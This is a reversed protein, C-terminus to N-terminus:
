VEDCPNVSWPNVSEHVVLKRLGQEDQSYTTQNRDSGGCSLLVVSGAGASVFNIGAVRADILDVAAFGALLIADGVAHLVALKGRTLGGVELSAFRAQLPVFLAIHGLVVAVQGFLILALEVTFGVVHALADVFILM